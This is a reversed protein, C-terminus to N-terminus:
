FLKNRSESNTAEQEIFTQMVNGEKEGKVSILRHLNNWCTYRSVRTLYQSKQFSSCKSFSTQPQQQTKFPIKGELEYVLTIRAQIFCKNIYVYSM